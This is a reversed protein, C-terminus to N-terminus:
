LPQFLLLWVLLLWHLPPPLHHLLRLLLLQLLLLPLFPLLLLPLGKPNSQEQSLLLILISLFDDM